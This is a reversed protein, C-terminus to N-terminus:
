IIPQGGPPSLTKRGMGDLDALQLDECAMGNDDVWYDKWTKGSTDSVFIKIGVKNEKNPERWGVIIQDRDSSLLDATALAHGQNLDSTLVTRNLQDQTVLENGHMPSIGAFGRQGNGQDLLRLEGLSRRYGLEERECRGM